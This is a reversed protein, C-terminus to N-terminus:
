YGAGIEGIDFGYATLDGEFGFPTATHQTIDFDIPHTAAELIGRVESGIVADSNDIFNVTLTAPYVPYLRVNTLQLSKLLNYIDPITGYSINAAIQGYIQVRFVSDSTAAAGYTPRTKGVRKGDQNLAWDTASDLYLDTMSGVTATELAQVEALVAGLVDPVNGQSQFQSLLLAIGEDVIGTKVSIGDM